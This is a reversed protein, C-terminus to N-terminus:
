EGQGAGPLALQQAALKGRAHREQVEAPQLMSTCMALIDVATMFAVCTSMPAYSVFDETVSVAITVTALESLPSGSATLAVISVGAERAINAVEVLQRARGNFSILFLADNEQLMGASILQTFADDSQVCPIGLRYFKNQAEVAVVRAGGPAYCEIRRSKVLLRAAADIQAPDLNASLVSLAAMASQAIKQIVEPTSDGASIDQHMAQSHVVADQAYALKFDSFGNFGLKRCFRNVTPQSVAVLCALEVVGMGTIDHTPDSVVDAIRREAESLKEYRSHVLAALQRVNVPGSKDSQM